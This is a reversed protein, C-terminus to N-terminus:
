YVSLESHCRLIFGNRAFLLLLYPLTKLAHSRLYYSKGYQTLSYANKQRYRLQIFHRVAHLFRKRWFVYLM